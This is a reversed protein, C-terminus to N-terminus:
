QRILSVASSTLLKPKLESELTLKVWLKQTKQVCIGPLVSRPDPGVPDLNPDIGVRINTQHVIAVTNLNASYFNTGAELIAGEGM